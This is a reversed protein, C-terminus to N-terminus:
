IVGFTGFDYSGLVLVCIQETASIRSLARIFLDALFVDGSM